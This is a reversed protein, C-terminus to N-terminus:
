LYCIVTQDKGLFHIVIVELSVKFIGISARCGTMVSQSNSVCIQQPNNIVIASIDTMSKSTVVRRM